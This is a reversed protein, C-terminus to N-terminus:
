AGSSGFIAGLKLGVEFVTYNKNDPRLLADQFLSRPPEETIQEDLFALQEVNFFYSLGVIDFLAWKRGVEVSWGVSNRYNWVLEESGQSSDLSLGSGVIYRKSSLQALKFALYGGGRSNYDRRNFQFGLALQTGEIRPSLFFQQLSTVSQRVQKYQFLVTQRPTLAFRYTVDPTVGTSTGSITAGAVHLVTFDLGHRKQARAESASLVVLGLTLCLLALVLVSGLRTKGRIKGMLM